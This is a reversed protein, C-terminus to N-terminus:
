AHTATTTHLTQLLPAQNVRSTSIRHLHTGLHRKLLRLMTMNRQDIAARAIPISVNHQRRFGEALFAMGRGRTRHGLAVFLNSYRNNDAESRHALM